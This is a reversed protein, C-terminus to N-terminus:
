DTLKKLIIYTIDDNFNENGTFKRLAAPLARVQDVVDLGLNIKFVALVGERGFYKKEPSICDTIGDTYLVLEDGKKMTFRVTEFNIPFDAIGIAGYQNVGEEEVNTIKGSENIFHIAKPHGANVLEIDDKNFRILLGTLYNEISGKEAIIRTNIKAMVENLPLKAGKKFEQEIINKVLMTVLGSAIGHGSIDFIGIGDLHNDTTIIIYLDGSVGSMPKFTYKLDWDKLESTDVKYFSKQVFGALDIEQLARNKEKELAETRQNVIIELNKNMNEVESALHVFHIILSGLFLFIVIVWSIALFLTDINQKFFAKAIIQTTFAFLFPTLCIIFHVLRKDKNKISTYLIKGIFLFQIVIFMFGIRLRSRFDPINTATLPLIIGILTILFRFIKDAKKEKYHLFDRTFCIIMYGTLLATAGKFIKEFTLYSLSLSRLFSYEGFYFVCLYLGTFLCLQSFSLNEVESRRLIYLFFYILNIIFLIVSLIFYMKSHIFTYYEAFSEVSTYDSIFPKIGISGYGHCWICIILTNEGGINLYEKPIKYAYTKNGEIFEHPPFIGAKGITHNNIYIKAAIKIRGIALGIEKYKFDSPITFTTKLFVYGTRSEFLNYLEDFNNIDFDYFPYPTGQLSYQWNEDLPIRNKPLKKNNCATLFFSIFLFSLIIILKYKKNM